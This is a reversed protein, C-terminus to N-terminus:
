PETVPVMYRTLVETLTVFTALMVPEAPLRQFETVILEALEFVDNARM